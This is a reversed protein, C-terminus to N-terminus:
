REMRGAGGGKKRGTRRVKADEGGSVGSGRGPWRKRKVGRREEGEEETVM